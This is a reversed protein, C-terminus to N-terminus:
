HAENDTHSNRWAVRVARGAARSPCARGFTIAIGALQPWEFLPGAQRCRPATRHNAQRLRHPEVPPAGLDSRLISLDTRPMEVASDGMETDTAPRSPVSVRAHKPSHKRSRDPM